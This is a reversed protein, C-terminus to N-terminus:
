GRVVKRCSFFPKGMAPSFTEGTMSTPITFNKCHGKFVPTTKKLSSSAVVKGLKTAAKVKVPEFLGVASGLFAKNHIVRPITTM